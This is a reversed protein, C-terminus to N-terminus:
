NSCHLHKAQTRKYPRPLALERVACKLTRRCPQFSPLVDRGRHAAKVTVRRVVPALSVVGYGAAHFAGSLLKGVAIERAPYDSWIDRRVFFGAGSVPAVIRQGPCDPFANTVIVSSHERDHRIGM